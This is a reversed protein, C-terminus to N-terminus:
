SGCKAGLLASAGQCVLFHVSTFLMPLLTVTVGLVVLLIGRKADGTAFTYAGMVAVFFGISFGIGGVFISNILKLEAAGVADTTTPTPTTPSAAWSASPSFMVLACAMLAFITLLKM